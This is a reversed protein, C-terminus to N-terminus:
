SFQAVRLALTRKMIDPIDLILGVYGDGLIAAGFISTADKLARGITKVVVPTDGILADVVLGLRHGAHEVVVIHRNAVSKTGLIQEGLKLVPVMGYPLSLLGTGNSQFVLDPPTALCERVMDIPIVYRHKAVKVLLGRVVALTLPLRVRFLTGDGQRSHVEISGALSEISSKVSDLGVGRGSVESLESATTLGAAFVMQAIEREDGGVPLGLDLARKRIAALDLGGGDDEVDIVVQGAAPAALLSVRGMPPKGLRRRTAPDEIGHAVANRVLHLLAESVRDVLALDIEVEEGSIHLMVEKGLSQAADRATRRHSALIPGLPVLRMRMALDSLQGLLPVAEELVDRASDQLSASTLLNEIRGRSVSLESALEVLSDVRAVEIRLTPRAARADDAPAERDASRRRDAEPPLPVGADRQQDTVRRGRSRTKEKLREEPPAPSGFAGLTRLEVSLAQQALSMEDGPQATPLGSRIADVAKLLVGIAEKEAPQRNKIGAKVAALADEFAHALHAISDFGFIGANGKLTHADRQLSDIPAESGPDRELNLISTEMNVLREESEALHVQRLREWDVDYYTPRAYPDYI